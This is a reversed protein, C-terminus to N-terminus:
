YTEIKWEIKEQPKLLYSGAGAEAQKGNVYFAWFEKKVASVAKHDIETVFANKGEGTTKVQSTKQLLDLATKGQQIEIKVFDQQNTGDSQVKQYVSINKISVSTQTPNRGANKKPSSYFFYVLSLFLIFILGFLLAKKM